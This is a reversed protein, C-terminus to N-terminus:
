KQGRANITFKVTRGIRASTNPMQVNLQLQYSDFKPIKTLPVEFWRPDLSGDSSYNLIISRGITKIRQKGDVGEIKYEVQYDQGQPINYVEFYVLMSEGNFTRDLNPVFPIRQRHNEDQPDALLIDSLQIRQEDQLAIPLPFKLEEAESSAIIYAGMKEHVREKQAPKKDLYQSSFLISKVSTEEDFYYIGKGFHGEENLPLLHPQERLLNWNEDYEYLTNLQVIDDKSLGEPRASAYALLPDYDIAETAVMYVTEFRSDMFRLIQSDVTFHELETKTDTANSPVARDRLMASSIETNDYRSLNTRATQTFKEERNSMSARIIDHTMNNYLQSYFSDIAGIEELVAYKLMLEAGERSVQTYGPLVFTGGGSEDYRTGGASGGFSSQSIAKTLVKQDDYYSSIRNGSIPILSLIGPQLGFPGGSGPRGFVFSTFPEETMLNRYYWIEAKLSINNHLPINTDSAPDIVRNISVSRQKIEAPPGFRVYILGRDDTQYPTNHRVRFKKRAHQIREWHEFLRENYSSSPFPDQKIWFETLELTFARSRQNLLQQLEEAKTTSMIPKLRELEEQLFDRYIKVDADKLGWFYMENAVRYYKKAKKQTVVDIFAFGIRPDASNERGFASKAKLWIDLAEKWEGKLLEKKGEEYFDDEVLVGPSPVNIFILIALIWPSFYAYNLKM